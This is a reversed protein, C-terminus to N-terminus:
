NEEHIEWQDGMVCRVTYGGPSGGLGKPNNLTQNSYVASYFGGTGMADNPQGSNSKFLGAAIKQASFM